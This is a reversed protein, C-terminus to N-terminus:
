VTFERFALALRTVVVDTTSSSSSIIIIIVIIGLIVQGHKQQSTM